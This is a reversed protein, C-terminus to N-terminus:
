SRALAVVEAVFDRAARRNANSNYWRNLGSPHPLAGVLTGRHERWELWRVAGRMGLAVSVGGLAVVREYRGLDLQAAAAKAERLPFRDGQGLRGPWHDLVNALDFTARFEVPSLGSIGCLWAGTRTLEPDLPPAGNRGPSQGLILVPIELEAAEPPASSPRTASM